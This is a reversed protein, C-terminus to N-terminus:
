WQSSKGRKIEATMLQSVSREMHGTVIAVHLYDIEQQLILRLEVSLGLYDNITTTKKAKKEKEENYSHLIITKSQQTLTNEIELRGGSKRRASRICVEGDPRVAPVCM